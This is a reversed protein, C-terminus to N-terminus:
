YPHKAEMACEPVKSAETCTGHTESFVYGEDCALIHAEGGVCNTFTNKCPGHSTTGEAECRGLDDKQTASCPVSEPYDCMQKEEDFILHAPCRRITGMGAVCAIMESSCGVAYFGDPKNVCFTSLQAPVPTTTKQEVPEPNMPMEHAPEAAAVVETPKPEGSTVPEAPEPEVPEPTTDWSEEVVAGYAGVSDSQPFESAEGSGEVHVNEGSYEGSSEEAPQDSAVEGSTEGSGEGSNARCVEVALPYDCLQREEDFALKAPCYMPIQRGNTCAYFLDSCNGYSFFGDEPCMESSNFGPAGACEEVNGPYECILLRKDFVLNAPCSMIRSVGGSCTLFYPSCPAHEFLGDPLNGCENKSEQDGESASGELPEVKPQADPEQPPCSSMESPKVCAFKSDDYVLGVPCEMLSPGNRSCQIVSSSCATLAHFGEPAKECFQTPLDALYRIGTKTLKEDPSCEAALRYDVCEEISGDFILGFPCLLWMEHGFSNCITVNSSCGQSFLGTKKDACFNTRGEPFALVQNVLLTLLTLRIM